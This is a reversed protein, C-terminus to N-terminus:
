FDEPKEIKEYDLNKTGKRVKMGSLPLKINFTTGKGEESEFWVQGGTVEIISRAIYLGLGTGEIKTEKVNNARFLKTFIKAKQNEPIGMGTDSVQILYEKEQKEIKLTLTGGDRNYKVANSLFNQFVILMLKPDVNVQPMAKDISLSVKIKKQKIKHELEKLVTKAIETIDTKEPEVAFTGLEISTVNRLLTNVLDVMRQNGKYIEQLYDKQEKTLKGADGALLMETYWNVFSLPTRLQHSALSLFETKARDVEKEKTIDREVGVFFYLKGDADLVPSISAWSIYEEGNKKKNTLEGSFTKKEEKITKWMKEYFEYDMKGGWNDQTGVKQGIIEDRRFGTIKEVAKNAYIIIGDPDTIVIHDSVNEVALKFKELDTALKKSKTKEQEADELVNLLTGKQSELEDAKKKIDAMQQKMKQDIEVQSKKIAAVMKGFSRSLGGIEDGGKVEIKHKFNGRAIIEASKQLNEIPVIVKQVVFCTVSYYILIFIVLVILLVFILQDLNAIVEKGSFSEFSFFSILFGIVLFSAALQVALSSALKRRIKIKKNKSV